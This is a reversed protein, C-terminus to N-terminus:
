KRLLKFAHGWQNHLMGPICWLMCLPEIARASQVGGMDMAEFGFLELIAVVEKKANDSNGCIFMTPKIGGFDPNVMFTNGISNFAKVFHAKPAFEQLDEMHSRDLSTFFKIVGNDPPLDAIPNTTDIIIKDNLHEIGALKLSEKAITGKTALILIDGYKATEDFSGVQANPGASKKWEDLKSLTRTGIMVPYGYQLFGNALTKGVDGSGLIGIKKM